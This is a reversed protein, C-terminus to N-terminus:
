DVFAKLTSGKQSRKWFWEISSMNRVVLFKPLIEARLCEWKKKKKTWIPRRGFEGSVLSHLRRHFAVPCVPCLSVPCRISLDLHGLSPWGRLSSLLLFQYKKKYLTAQILSMKWDAPGKVKVRFSCDNLLALSKSPLSSVSITLGTGEGVYSSAFATNVWILWEALAYSTRPLMLQGQRQSSPHHHITM